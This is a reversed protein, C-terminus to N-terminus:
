VPLRVALHGLLKILFLLKDWIKGSDQSHLRQFQRESVFKTDSGMNDIASTRSSTTYLLVSLMHFLFHHYSNSYGWWGARSRPRRLARWGRRADEAPRESPEVSM